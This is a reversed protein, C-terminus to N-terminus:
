EEVFCKRWQSAMAEGLGTLTRSRRKWRDPGPSEFHVRPTRGEVIKTPVLPPLGKLWLSTAKTENHGFMFPQVVQTPKVGVLKAAYPHMRPNEICIHPIDRNLLSGLFFRVADEMHLWRLPDKGNKKDGGNYLWRIGSNCLYTCPPFCIFGGWKCSQLAQVIDMQLHWKPNGETPLLDCSYAEVGHRRFASTVVGSFECGVLIPLETMM